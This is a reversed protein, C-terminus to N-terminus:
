RGQSSACGANGVLFPHRLDFACFPTLPDLWEVANNKPLTSRKLELDGELARVPHGSLARLEMKNGSDSECHNPRRKARARMSISANDPVLAGRSKRLVNWLEDSRHVRGLASRDDFCQVWGHAELDTIYSTYRKEGDYGCFMDELLDLAREVDM